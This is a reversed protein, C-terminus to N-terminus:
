PTPASKGSTSSSSRATQGVVEDITEVNPAAAALDLAQRMLIFDGPTTM